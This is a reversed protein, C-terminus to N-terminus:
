QYEMILKGTTVDLSYIRTDLIFYVEGAHWALVVPVSYFDGVVDKMPIVQEALAVGDAPNYMTLLLQNPEAQFKILLLGADTLKWTWASEGKDVLGSMEYPPDVHGSNEMVMQWAHEGTSAELGWLELRQSGKIRRTLLLLTQDSLALPAFEYAEDELLLKLAGGQKTLVYLRGQNGFYIRDASQLFNFGYFGTGFSDESHIEWTLRGTGLDYRQICGFSSGFVLHLADAAADYVIGSDDELNEEWSADSTCIPFIVRQESGDRPDLLFINFDYEDELYDLIVLRGGMVRLGRAYGLLSRNWVESGTGADYAHISRDMTMVIVMGDVIVLNDEGSDLRDPLAARWLLSGDSANFALLEAEVAALIREGDTVMEDVYGDGPMPGTKWAVKSDSHNVRSISRSEDNTNYFLAAVDPPADQAAPLLVAQEMAVMRPVLPSGPQLMVLGLIGGVLLFIFAPIACGLWAGTATAAAATAAGVKVVAEAQRAVFGAEPDLLNGAEMQEIAHKARALSVDYFERYRKIADLKNGSRVMQLIDDPIRAHEKLDINGGPRTKLADLVVVNQCFTCRVVASTGDYDLPAGCAPCNLSKPSQVPM